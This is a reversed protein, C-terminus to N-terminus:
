ALEDPIEFTNKTAIENFENKKDPNEDFIKVLREGLWWSYKSRSYMECIVEVTEDVLPYKEIYYAIL